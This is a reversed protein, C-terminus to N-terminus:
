ELGQVKPMEHTPAIEEQENDSYRGVFPNSDDLWSKAIDDPVANTPFNGRDFPNNSYLKENDPSREELAAVKCTVSPISDGNQYFVSQGVALTGKSVLHFIVTGYGTKYGSRDRLDCDWAVTAFDSSTTNKIMVMASMTRGNVALRRLKMQLEGAQAATTLLALAAAAAFLSRKIM